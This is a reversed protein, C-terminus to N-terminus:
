PLSDIISQILYFMGGCAIGELTDSSVRINEPRHINANLFDRHSAAIVRDFADVMERKPLVTTKYTSSKIFNEIGNLTPFSKRPVTACYAGWLNVQNLRLKLAQEYVTRLIMGTAIPFMQYAKKRGCNINSLKYLEHLASLLGEHLPDGPKLKGEWSITEFFARPPPGGPPPGGPTSGSTVNDSCNKISSADEGIPDKAGRKVVTAIARTASDDDPKEGSDTINDLPIPDVKNAIENPEEQVALELLPIIGNIDTLVNRTNIRETIITEEFVLQVIQNFLASDLQSITNHENDYSIKLIESPKVLAGHFHFKAKFVRLFPDIKLDVIERSFDPHGERYKNYAHLFFKYDRIDSKIESEKIGTIKALNQVTRGIQYNSAFFQKKAIPRWQKVGEIHRKSMLEIAAERNPLVDVEIFRCNEKVKDSTTPIKHTFGDPILERSLLMQLSCTRRNGEVVVYKSGKQLVVIREGPLLGGYNNIAVALQCTDEYTVLYKRIDAQEKKNLIVFRPNEDDLLLDLPSITITM